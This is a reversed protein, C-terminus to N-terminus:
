PALRDAQHIATKFAAACVPLFQIPVDLDAVNLACDSCGM